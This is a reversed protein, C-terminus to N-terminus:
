TVPGAAGLEAREGLRSCSSLLGGSAYFLAWGTVMADDGCGGHESVVGEALSHEGHAGGTRSQGGGEAREDVRLM